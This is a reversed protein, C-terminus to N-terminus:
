HLIYAALRERGARDDAEVVEVQFVSFGSYRLSLFLEATRVTIKEEALLRKLLRQRFLRMLEQYGGLRHSSLDWRKIHM